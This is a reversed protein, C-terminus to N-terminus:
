FFAEPNIGSKFGTLDQQVIGKFPSDLSFQCPNFTIDILLDEKQM